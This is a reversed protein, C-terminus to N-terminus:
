SRALTLLLWFLAICAGLVKWGRALLYQQEQAHLIKKQNEQRRQELELTSQDIAEREAATANDAQQIQQNLLARQQELEDQELLDNVATAAMQPKWGPLLPRNHLSHLYAAAARVFTPELDAVYLPLRLTRLPKQNTRAPPTPNTTQKPERRMFDRNRHVALCLTGSDFYPLPPQELYMGAVASWPIFGQHLYTIGEQDLRLISKKGLLQATMKWSIFVAGGLAIATAPVVLPHEDRCLYGTTGLVGLLGIALLFPIGGPGAELPLGQEIQRAHEQQQRRLRLHAVWGLGGSM